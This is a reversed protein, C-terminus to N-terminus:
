AGFAAFLLLLRVGRGGDSVIDVAFSYGGTLSYCLLQLLTLLNLIKGRISSTFKVHEVSHLNTMKMKDYILPTHNEAGATL